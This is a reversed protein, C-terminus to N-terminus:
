HLYLVSGLGAGIAHLMLCPDLGGALYLSSTVQGQTAKVDALTSAAFMALITM